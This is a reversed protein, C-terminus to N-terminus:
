LEISAHYTINGRTLRIEVEGSIWKPIEICGDNRITATYLLTHYNTIDVSEGIMDVYFEITYGNQTAYIFPVPIRHTPKKEISPDLYQGGMVITKSHTTAIVQNCSLLLAMVIIFFTKSNMIKYNQNTPLIIFLTSHLCTKECIYIWWFYMM